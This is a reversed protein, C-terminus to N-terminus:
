SLKPKSNRNKFYAYFLSPILYLLVLILPITGSCAFEFLILTFFSPVNIAGLYSNPINGYSTLPFYVAGFAMVSFFLIAKIGLAINNRYLQFLEKEFTQLGMFLLVSMLVATYATGWSLLIMYKKVNINHDYLRTELDDYYPHFWSIGDLWDHFGIPKLYVEWWDTYFFLANM